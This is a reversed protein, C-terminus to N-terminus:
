IGLIWLIRVSSRATATRVAQAPVSTGVAGVVGPAIPGSCDFTEPRCSNMWRPKDDAAWARLLDTVTHTSGPRM